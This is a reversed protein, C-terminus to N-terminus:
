SAARMNLRVKTFPQVGPVKKGAELLERYATDSVRRQFLHYYKHKHVFGEFAQWDQVDAVVSTSTSITGKGAVTFKDLGDAHMKELLRDEIEKAQAELEKIKAELERKSNRINFLMEGDSGLSPAKVSKAKKAAAAAKPPAEKTITM